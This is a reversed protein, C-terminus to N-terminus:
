FAREEDQTPTPVSTDPSNRAIQKAIVTDLLLQGVHYFLLPMIALPFKEQYQDFLLLSVQLTKQSASFAVAIQRGRDFGLWRCSVWGSALAWLHLVVALVVSWLFVMPVNLTDRGHLRDGVAVGAKLLIALIFFQALMGLLVKYREAFRRCPPIRRAAQGLVVPVILSVVLNLMMGRVDLTISAGTLGYLWATTLFWSSLTTGMVTLLATAENGGAMRTWLIASSLTCPVSSVLILGIRVDPEPTLFSLLWASLPVLAYSLFVAWLTPLPRRVEEVLSRTPMTWAMLFLSIAITRSPEWHDTVDRMANPVLLTSVVGLALVILFWHRGLFSRM